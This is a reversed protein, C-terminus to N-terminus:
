EISILRKTFISYLFFIVAEVFLMDDMNKKCQWVLDHSVNNFTIRELGRVELFTSALFSVELQM